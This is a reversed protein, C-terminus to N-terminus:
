AKLNFQDVGVFIGSVVATESALRRWFALWCGSIDCSSTVQFHSGGVRKLESKGCDSGCPGSTNHHRQWNTIEERRKRCLGEAYRKLSVIIDATGLRRSSWVDRLCFFNQICIHGVWRNIDSARRILQSVIVVIRQNHLKRGQCSQRWSFWPAYFDCDWIEVVVDRTKIHCLYVGTCARTHVYKTWLQNAVSCKHNIIVLHCCRTNLILRYCYSTRSILIGDILIAILPAECDCGVIRLCFLCLNFDTAQRIDIGRSKFRYNNGTLVKLYCGWIVLYALERRPNHM